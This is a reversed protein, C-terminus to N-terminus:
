QLIRKIVPNKTSTKGNLFVKINAKSKGRSLAVYLQGHQFAPKELYIMVNDLTQGQSKHITMAFSLQVPFQRRRLPVYGEEDLDLIIRPIFIRENQYQGVAIRAVLVNAHLEDIILRTGNCLKPPDLNRLLMVPSGKKLQLTHPPLGPIELSDLFERPFHTENTGDPVSNFADYVKLEGPFKNICISNILRVSENLTTLISSRSFLTMPDNFSPYITDLSEDLTSSSVIMDRPIEIEGNENTPIAGDGIQLLFASYDLEDERVRMNKSLEYRTFTKWLYSRKICANEIDADSGKKIVPLLQRFDGLCVTAIGGFPKDVNCIDRLTRDVAEFCERRMMPCEDWVILKTRRILDATKSDKDINCTSTQTIKLPIKFRSHATRGGTMLTAAIGSSAVALAILGCSRIRSLLINTLFTKGCGGPSEVFVMNSIAPLPSDVIECIRDYVIRQDDNLRCVNERVFSVQDAQVYDLEHNIDSNTSMQVLEHEPRPLNFDDLTKGHVQLRDQIYYLAKDYNREDVNAAMSTSASKEQYLFDESMSNRFRMWLREVDDVVTNILLCVFLDRMQKPLRTKEADELTKYWQDDDQLLGRAKCADKFTPLVTGDYTRLNEFSTPGKVYHLLIRLYYLDGSKPSVTYLRGLCTVQFYGPWENVPKGRKRKQWKKNEFRFFNCLNCYLLTRAFPDQRCLDFFATLSTNGLRTYTETGQTIDANLQVFVRNEMPLHVHLRIVPPDREHIPFGLISSVAECPGIYRGTVYEKIEDKVEVGFVAQDSGKLTYKIVYKISSVSSCIEVNVHCQFMMLLDRNYPVVWENSIVTENGDKKGTFGGTDPSRRRYIPYAREGSLTVQAFSKPYRFKCKGDDKSHCQFSRSCFPGHIMHTMVLRHLHPEENIDPIEAQVFNDFSNPRPKSAENLWLLCHLHPLGRKQWEVTSVHALTRGFMGNDGTVKKIFLKRKLDFVRAVLDPRDSPQQGQFLNEKIESWNPNCTMTIFLSATGYQRVYMMADQCREMMYRPGGVHTSPLLVRQGIDQLRDNDNLADTLGSFTTSRLAPQNLKLYNLDNTEIKAAMDVVYQQFLKSGRQLLNISNPRIMLRYAYFRTMTLRKGNAAKLERHWGDDGFPFFLVYQLPDYSRHSECIIQINGGRERLVIHRSKNDDSAAYNVVVAVENAQQANFRREHEQPPRRDPDIVIRANPMDKIQDKAAKFSM